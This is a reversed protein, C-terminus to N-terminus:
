SKAGGGPAFSDPPIEALEANIEELIKTLEDRVGEDVRNRVPQIGLQHEVDARAKLLQERRTLARAPQNNAARDRKPQGPDGSKTVIWLGAVMVVALGLFLAVPAVM